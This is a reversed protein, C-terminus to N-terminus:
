STEYSSLLAEIELRLHLQSHLEALYLLKHFAIQCWRQFVTLTLLHRLLYHQVDVQGPVPLLMALAENFVRPLHLHLQGVAQLDAEGADGHIALGESVYLEAAIVGLM